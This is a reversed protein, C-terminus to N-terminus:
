IIEIDDDDGDINFQSMNQSLQSSMPGNMLSISMYRKLAKNFRENLSPIESDHLSRLAQSTGAIFQEKENKKLHIMTKFVYAFFEKDSDKQQLGNIFNDIKMNDEQKLLIRETKNEGQLSIASQKSVSAIKQQISQMPLQLSDPQLNFM